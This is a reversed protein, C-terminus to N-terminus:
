SSQLLLREINHLGEAFNGGLYFGAMKLRWEPQVEFIRGGYSIVPKGTQATEPLWQPWDLLHSATAETMAVLVVLAPRLQKEANILELIEKFSGELPRAKGTGLIGDIVVGSSSVLKKLRALKLDKELQFVPIDREKLLSLNKDEGTRGSLLYVNVTAGWEHLCRATVLADGGNNGPGAMALVTKGAVYDIFHRVSEAVARGANEMLFDTTIGSAAARRDIDRMQEATVIKM